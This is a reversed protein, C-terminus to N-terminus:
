SAFSRVHIQSSGSSSPSCCLTPHCFFFLRVGGSDQGEACAQSPCFVPSRSCKQFSLNVLLEVNPQSGGERRCVPCRRRAQSSLAHGSCEQEIAPKSLQSFLWCVRFRLTVWVTQLRCSWGEPASPESETCTHTHLPLDTKFGFSWVFFCTVTVPEVAGSNITISGVVAKRNRSEWLCLGFFFSTTCARRQQSHVTDGKSFRASFQSVRTNNRAAINIWLTSFLM